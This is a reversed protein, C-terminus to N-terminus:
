VHARGIQIMKAPDHYVKFAKKGKVYVCGEGGAALYDKQTLSIPSAQGQIFVIM